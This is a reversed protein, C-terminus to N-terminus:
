GYVEGKLPDKFYFQAKDRNYYMIVDGKRGVEEPKIKQFIVHTENHYPYVNGEADVGPRYTCITNMAKNAFAEGGSFEYMSPPNPHTGRQGSKDSRAHAVINIHVNKDQAIRRIETLKEELYKDERGGHNEFSHRLENFPDLTVTDIHEHDILWKVKEIFVDMYLENDPLELIKYHGELRTKWNHFEEEKMHNVTPELGAHIHILKSFVRGTSGSEPSFIAHKWQHNETLNRLLNFLLASKGHFSLGGWYTTTGKLVTYFEDWISWGTTVGREFGNHYIKDIEKEASHVTKWM